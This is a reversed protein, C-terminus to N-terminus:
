SSSTRVSASPSSRSTPQNAPQPCTPSQEVKNQPSASLRGIREARQCIYGFVFLMFLPIGVLWLWGDLTYTDLLYTSRDVRWHHLVALANGFVMSGVAVIAGTATRGASMRWPLFSVAIVGVVLTQGFLGM